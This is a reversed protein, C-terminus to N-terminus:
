TAPTTILKSTGSQGNILQNLVWELPGKSFFKLYVNAFVVQSITIVFAAAALEYHELLGFLGFGTGLFLVNCIITQSIYLTLAVRGCKSLHSVLFTLLKHKILIALLGFNAIGLCLRRIDYTYKSFQSSLYELFSTEEFTLIPLLGLALGFGYASVTIWLYTTTELAGTFFGIRLLINGILFFTAVLGM